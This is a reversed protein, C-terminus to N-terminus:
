AGLARNFLALIANLDSAIEQREQTYPSHAANHAADHLDGAMAEATARALTITVTEPEQHFTITTGVTGYAAGIFAGIVLQPEDRWEDSTWYAIERGGPGCVRVYDCEDPFEPSRISGGNVLELVCEPGYDLVRGPDTDNM